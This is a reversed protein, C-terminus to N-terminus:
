GQSDGSVDVRAQEDVTLESKATGIDLFTMVGLSIVAFVVGIWFAVKFSGALGLHGSSGVGIDALGLFFCIGLFLTCNVLSGALGQRRTPLNTTVFINTVTWIVDVCCTEAVMAPLVWAWYNPDEPMLAFLLVPIISTVGCFILLVRGPVLHLIFGSTSALIVGGIGWPAFWLATTFPSKGLVLEIYFSAYFLYIGFVGYVVFICGFLVAMRRDSFIDFPLLPDTAVWGEVYVALALIVVGVAMPVCIRPTAWGNPAHSSDTIAYVVLLLGPVTTLTGLWDMGCGRRRADRYDNPISFLSAASGIAASIAGLWFYWRWSLVEESLGGVFLGLFFGVPCVAGYMAFVLNKRPGPRYVQGLLAIGCPLICASGLGQMARCVILTLSDTAFGAVLTWLTFWVYGVNFVVYSGYMDALRGIPLLMAGAVLSLVSSPWTRSEPPINLEISIAPLVTNFGSILYDAMLISHMVSFCFALEAMFSPFCPPRHRGLKEVDPLVPVVEVDVLDTPPKM